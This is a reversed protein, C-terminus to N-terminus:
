VVVVRQCEASRGSVDFTLPRMEGHRDARRQADRRRWPVLPGSIMQVILPVSALLGVPRRQAM